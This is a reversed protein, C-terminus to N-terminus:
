DVPAAGPWDSFPFPREETNFTLYRVIQYFYRSLNEGFILLRDVTKGTVLLCLFQFVVTVVLLLEAVGYAVVFLLMFFGRLWTSRAMIANRIEQPTDDSMESQGKLPTVLNSFIRLLPKPEQNDM